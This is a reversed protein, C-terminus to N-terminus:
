KLTVQPDLHTELYIRIIQHTPLKEDVLGPKTRSELKYIVAEARM